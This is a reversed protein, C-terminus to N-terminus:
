KESEGPTAPATVTGKQSGTEPRNTKGPALLMRVGAVLVFVAFLRRLVHAPLRGALETGIYTGVLAGVVLIAVAWLNLEITPNYWYRFAGLLAMPVM